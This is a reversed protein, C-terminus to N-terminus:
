RTGGAGPPVNPFDGHPPEPPGDDWKVRFMEYAISAVFGVLGLALLGYFIRVGIGLWSM